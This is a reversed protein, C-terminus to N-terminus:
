ENKFKRFEVAHGPDPTDFICIMRDTAPMRCRYRYVWDGGHDKSFTIEGATFEFRSTEPGSWSTRSAGILKGDNAQTVTMEWYYPHGSTTDRVGASDVIIHDAGVKGTLFEETNIEKVLLWRGPIENQDPVRTAAKFEAIMRSMESSNPDVTPTTTPAAERASVSWSGEYPDTRWTGSAVSKLALKFLDAFGATAKLDVNARWTGLYNANSGDMIARWNGAWGAPSKSASWAGSAVTKGQPNILAWSGTVTGNTAHPVATWTGGATAGNTSKAAWTGQSYTAQAGSRGVYIMSLFVLLAFRNRIM